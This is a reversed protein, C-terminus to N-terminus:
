EDTKDEWILPKGDANVMVTMACSEHGDVFLYCVGTKDDVIICAKDYIQISIDEIVSLRNNEEVKTKAEATTSGCCAILSFAIICVCIFISIFKKM